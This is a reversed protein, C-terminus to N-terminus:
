DAATRARGFTVYSVIRAGADFLASAAANLTSGTTLVDDVLILHAGILGSRVADNVCFAHHVNASRESPTLRTQTQTFRDRSIVDDWVPLRQRKGLARALLTAQNYGRERERVRALPIPVLATREEIVDRPWALRAMREGMADAIGGWGDYKLAHVAASGARDPVWCVSRVARVYAPFAACYPCVTATGPHGCRECRPAPLFALQSWCTGCMLGESMGAGCCVCSRPFVLDLLASAASSAASTPRDIATVTAGVTM